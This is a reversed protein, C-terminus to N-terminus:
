EARCEFTARAPTLLPCTLRMDQEVLQPLGAAGCAQAAVDRVQQPTAFSANYCVGVRPQQADAAGLLPPLPTTEFPTLGSCGALLITLVLSLRISRM